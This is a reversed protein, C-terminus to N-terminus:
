GVARGGPPPPPQPPQTAGDTGISRTRDFIARECLAIRETLTDAIADTRAAQGKQYDMWACYSRGPGDSPPADDDQLLPVRTIPTACPRGTPDIAMLNVCREDHVCAILAAWPGEGSKPYFHVVRGVTPQIM